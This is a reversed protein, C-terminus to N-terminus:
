ATTGHHFAVYQCNRVMLVSETKFVRIFGCILNISFDKIENPLPEPQM